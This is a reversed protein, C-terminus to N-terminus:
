NRFYILLRVILGSFEENEVYRDHLWIFEEHERTVSFQEQKFTKLTTQLSFSHTRTLLSLSRYLCITM